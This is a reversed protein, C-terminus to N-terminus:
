RTRWESCKRFFSGGAQVRITSGRKPRLHVGQSLGNFTLSVVPQVPGGEVETLEHGRARQLTVDYLRRQLFDCELSTQLSWLNLAPDAAAQLRAEATRPEDPRSVCVSCM